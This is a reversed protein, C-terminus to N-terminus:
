NDRSHIYYGQRKWIQVKGFGFLIGYFEEKLIGPWSLMQYKVKKKWLIDGKLGAPDNFENLNMIKEM